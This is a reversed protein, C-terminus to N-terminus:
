TTKVGKGILLLGLRSVFFDPEMKWVIDALKWGFIATFPALFQYAKICIDSLPVSLMADKLRHRQYHTIHQDWYTIEGFRNVLMEFLPWMSHYNPTSVIICGGPRLVRRSERLMVLREENTVHELVEILTVVDFREKEFPLYGKEICEFRHVRTGYHDQAYHIQNEAIDVGYSEKEADLTGIFTGPGCGIDLHSSYVSPMENRLVKFKLHHWKSQIGSMRQFVTDYYGADIANYDCHKKM